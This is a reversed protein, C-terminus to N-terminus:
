DHLPLSNRQEETLKGSLCPTVDPAFGEATTLQIKGDPRLELLGAVAGTKQDVPQLHGDRQIVDFSGTPLTCTAISGEAAPPGDERGGLYQLLNVLATLLCLLIILELPGLRMFKKIVM